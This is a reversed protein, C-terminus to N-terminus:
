RVPDERDNGNGSHGLLDRERVCQLTGTGAGREENERVLPMLVAAVRAGDATRADFRCAGAPDAQAFDIGRSADTTALAGCVQALESVYRPDLTISVPDKSPAWRPFVDRWKPFRGDARANEIAYSATGDTARIPLCRPISEPKENEGPERQPPGNEDIFVYDLIPRAKLAKRDLKWGCIQALAEGSVLGQWGPAAAQHVPALPHVTARALAPTSNDPDPERWTYAVLRRGDTAVAVPSGDASREFLIGGLAYRSSERDAVKRLQRFVNFPVLM